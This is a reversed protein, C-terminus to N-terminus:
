AAARWQTRATRGQRSPGPARSGIDFMGEHEVDCNACKWRASQLFELASSKRRGFLKGFSGGGTM